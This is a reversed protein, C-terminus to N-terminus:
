TQYKNKNLSKMKVGAKSPLLVYLQPYTVKKEKGEKKTGVLVLCPGSTYFKEDAKGASSRPFLLYM